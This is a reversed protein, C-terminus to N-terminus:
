DKFNSFLKISCTSNPLVSGPLVDSVLSTVGEGTVSYPSVKFMYTSTQLFAADDTLVQMWPFVKLNVEIDSVKVLFWLGM